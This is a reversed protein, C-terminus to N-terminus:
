DENQKCLKFHVGLAVPNKDMGSEMCVTSMTLYLEEYRLQILMKM